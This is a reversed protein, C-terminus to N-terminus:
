SGYEMHTESEKPTYKTYEPFATHLITTLSPASRSKIADYYGLAYSESPDMTRLLTTVNHANWMYGYLHFMFEAIDSQFDDARRMKDRTMITPRIHESPITAFGYDIIRPMIGFYPVAFHTTNDRFVVFKPHRPDWKYNEIKIMVNNLHLDHHRFDPYIQLIKALTFVVMFIISKLIVFEAPADKYNQFYDAFTYDCRELLEVAVRDKYMGRRVEAAWACFNQTIVDGPDESVHTRLDKLARDCPTNSKKVISVLGSCVRHSILRVVCPSIGVATIHEHLLQLTKIESDVDDQTDSKGEYLEPAHIRYPTIKALHRTKGLKLLVIQSGSFSRISTFIKDVSGAIKLLDCPIETKVDDM